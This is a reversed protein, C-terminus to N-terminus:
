YLIRSSSDFILPLCAARAPHCRLVRTSFLVLERLVKIDRYTTCMSPSYIFEVDELDLYLKSKQVCFDDTFGFPMEMNLSMGKITFGKELRQAKRNQIKLYSVPSKLIISLKEKQQPLHLHM